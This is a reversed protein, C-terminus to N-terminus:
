KITKVPISINETKPPRCTNGDCTMFIIQAKIRATAPDTVKFPIAFEINSDWWSLEMDFLPDFVKLPKRLPELKGIFEVGTSNDLNFVTPKPGDEPMELAYLHWGPAILARFTLTYSGDSSPQVFSRWRVPEIADSATAIGICIALLTFILTLRKWYMFHNAKQQAFIRCDSINHFKFFVFFSFISPPKKALHFFILLKACQYFSFLSITEYIKM